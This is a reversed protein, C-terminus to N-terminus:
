LFLFFYFSFSVPQFPKRQALITVAANDHVFVSIKGVSYVQINDQSSAMMTVLMGKRLKKPNYSEQSPFIGMDVKKNPKTVPEPEEEMIEEEPGEEVGQDVENEEAEAEFINQDEERDNIDEENFNSDQSEAKFPIPQAIQSTRYLPTNVPTPTFSVEDLIRTQLYYTEAIQGMGEYVEAPPVPRYPLTVAYLTM